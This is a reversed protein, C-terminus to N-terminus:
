RRRRAALGALALLSLAATAPEPVTIALAAINGCAGGANLTASTGTAMFTLKMLAWNNCSQAIGDTSQTLATISGDANVTPATLGDEVRYSLISGTQYEGGASISYTTLSSSGYNGYDNGRGGFVYVTYERGTVLGDFTISCGGGNNVTGSMLSPAFTSTINESNLITTVRGGEGSVPNGVTIKMGTAATGDAYSLQTFNSSSGAATSIINYTQDAVGLLSGQATTINAGGNTGFTVAMVKGYEFSACAVSATALLLILAKKM